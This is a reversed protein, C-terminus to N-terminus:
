KLIYQMLYHSGSVALIGVLFTSDLSLRSNRDVLYRIWAAQAIFIAFPLIRILRNFAAIENFFLFFVLLGPLLEFLYVSFINIYNLENSYKKNTIVLGSVFFMYIFFSKLALQVPEEIFVFLKSYKYLFYSSEAIENFESLQMISATIFTSFMALISM